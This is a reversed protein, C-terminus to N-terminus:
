FAIYAGALFALLITNLVPSKNKIAGTDAVAKATEAPSKFSSGM